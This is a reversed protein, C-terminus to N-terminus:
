LDKKLTHGFNAQTYACHHTFIGNSELSREFFVQIEDNFMSFIGNSDITKQRTIDGDEFKTLEIVVGTHICIDM